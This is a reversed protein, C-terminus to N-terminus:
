NIFQKLKGALDNEDILGMNRWVEKGSKYLILLPIGNINMATAIRPNKDVDIEFLELKASNKKALKTVIPKLQKCPGCWVANFDVLVLKDPNKIHALYDDMSLGAQPAEGNATTVPKSAGMWGTIGASLNNVNEFGETVALESAKKSRGGALCYFYVPKSKDLSNIQEKFNDSNINMNVAGAIHKEKYEDPTRVDILQAGKVAIGQQFEGANLNKVNSAQTNCSTFALTILFTAIFSKLKMM